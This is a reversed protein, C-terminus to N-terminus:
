LSSLNEGISCLHISFAGKEKVLEPLLSAEGKGVWCCCRVSELEVEVVNDDSISIRIRPSARCSKLIQM